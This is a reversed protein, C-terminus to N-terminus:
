ENDNGKQYDGYEGQWDEYEEWDIPTTSEEGNYRYCM